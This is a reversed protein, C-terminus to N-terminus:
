EYGNEIEEQATRTEKIEAACTEAGDHTCVCLRLRIVAIM